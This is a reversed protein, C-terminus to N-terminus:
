GGLFSKLRDLLGAAREPAPRPVALPAFEALVKLYADRKFDIVLDPAEAIDAWRWEQFEQPPVATLDVESDDGEFLFAFWAQRQGRYGKAAKSGNFGPPFDYSIWDSARALLSISRLGTEEYLERRAAAELDEGPDVGGQPFQWSHMGQTHFRRGLWVRGQRDFVVVGVNERYLPTENM